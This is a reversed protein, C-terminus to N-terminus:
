RAKPWAARCCWSGVQIVALRKVIENLSVTVYNGPLSHTETKSAIPTPSWQSVFHRRWRVPGSESWIGRRRRRSLLGRFCSLQRPQARKWSSNLTVLPRSVCAKWAFNVRAPLPTRDVFPSDLAPPSTGWIQGARAPKVWAAIVTSVDGHTETLNDLSAHHDPNTAPTTASCPGCSTSDGDHLAYSPPVM